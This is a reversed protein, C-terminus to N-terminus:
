NTAFTSNEVDVDSGSVFKLTARWLDTPNDFYEIEEVAYAHMGAEDLRTGIILADGPKINMGFGMIELNHTDEGIIRIYMFDHGWRRVENTYDFFRYKKLM